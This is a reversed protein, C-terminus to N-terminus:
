RKESALAFGGRKEDFGLAGSARTAAGGRILGACRGLTRRGGPNSRRAAPHFGVGLHQEPDLGELEPEWTRSRRRVEHRLKILHERCM